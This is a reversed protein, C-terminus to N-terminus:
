HFTMPLRDIRTPELSKSHGQFTPHSPDFNEPLNGYNREYITQDLILSNPTTVFTSLLMIELPDSMGVNWPPPAGDDGV